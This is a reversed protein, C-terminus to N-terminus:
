KKLTWSQAGFPRRSIKETHMVDINHPLDLDKFYPLKWFCPIHTWQHTEGFGEFGNGNPKPKLSRLEAEYKIGTMLRPRPADVVVGKRFRKTDSRFKHGLPLFQRHQDFCSYKDGKVLWSFTVSQRCELCPWKGHTCWGCFLAHAPLDHLSTHFWVYMNFHKKAIADYIRVGRGNGAALLDDFLLGMYVSMNKGPYKTGSIIM